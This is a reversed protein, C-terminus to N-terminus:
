SVTKLSNYSSFILLKNLQRVLSYLESIRYASYYELISVCHGLSRMYLALLLSATALKSAKEQVYDYELLTMKYIYLFLTLTKMNPHICRAYRCQFHYNVPINIDFKLVNLIYIEMKLMEDRKMLYFDVLKVVLYLTEHTMEFSVQVEVLWDVLIARMDSTIEIQRNM